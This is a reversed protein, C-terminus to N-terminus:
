SGGLIDLVEGTRADVTVRAEYDPGREGPTRPRVFEVVLHADGEEIRVEGGEPIVVHQGAAERAADVAAERSIRVDQREDDTM